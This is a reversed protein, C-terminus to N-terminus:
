DITWGAQLMEEVTKYETRPAADWEAKGKPPQFMYVHYITFKSDPKGKVADDHEQTALLVGGKKHELSGTRSGDQIKMPLFPWCPWNDPKRIMKADDHPTFETKLTKADRSSKSM